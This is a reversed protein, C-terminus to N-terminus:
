KKNKIVKRFVDDSSFEHKIPNGNRDAAEFKGNAGASIMWYGTQERELGQVVGYAIEQGTFYDNKVNPFSPIALDGLSKPYVGNASRYKELQFALYSVRIKAFVHYRSQNISNVAIAMRSVFEMSFSETRLKSSPIWQCIFLQKNHDFEDLAILFPDPNSKPVANTPELKCFRRAQFNVLIEYKQAVDKWDAMPEDFDEEFEYGVKLGFALRQLCDYVRYRESKTACQQISIPNRCEKLVKCYREIQDATWEMEQVAWKEANAAFHSIRNAISQVHIDQMSRVLRAIRRIASLDGIVSEVDDNAIGNMCRHILQICSQEIQYLYGADWGYYEETQGSEEILPYFFKTKKSAFVLRDLVLKNQKLWVDSGPVDEIKWPKNDYGDTAIGVQNTFDYLQDATMKGKQTRQLFTYLNELKKGDFKPVQGLLSEFKQCFVQNGQPESLSFVDVMFNNDTNVGKSNQLNMLTMFDIRGDDHLPLEAFGSEKEIKKRLWVKLDDPGQKPMWSWTGLCVLLLAIMGLYLFFKQM